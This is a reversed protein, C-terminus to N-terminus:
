RIFITGTEMDHTVHKYYCKIYTIFYLKLYIAPAQLDFLDTYESLKM